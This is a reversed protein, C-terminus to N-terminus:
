TSGTNNGGCWMNCDAQILNIIIKKKTTRTSENKCTQKGSEFNFKMKVNKLIRQVRIVWCYPFLLM